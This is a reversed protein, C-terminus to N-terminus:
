IFYMSDEVSDLFRKIAWDPLQIEDESPLNKVQYHYDSNAYSINLCNIFAQGVEKQLVIGGNNVIELSHIDSSNENFFWDGDSDMYHGDESLETINKLLIHYKKNETKM